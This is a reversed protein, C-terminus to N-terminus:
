QLVMRRSDEDRKFRLGRDGCWALVEGLDDRAELLKEMTKVSDMKLSDIICARRQWVKDRQERVEKLKGRTINLKYYLVGTARKVAKLVADMLIEGGMRRVNSNRLANSVIRKLTVEHGPRALEIVKEGGEEREVGDM